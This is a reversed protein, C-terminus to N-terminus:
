RYSVAGSLALRSLCDDTDASFDLRLQPFYEAAPSDFSRFTSYFGFCDNNTTDATNPIPFVTCLSLSLSLSFWQTAFRGVRM